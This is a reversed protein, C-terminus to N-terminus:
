KISFEKKNGGIQENVWVRQAEDKRIGMNWSRGIRVIMPDGDRVVEIEEGVMFGFELLRIRLCPNCMQCPVGESVCEVKYVGGKPADSLKIM